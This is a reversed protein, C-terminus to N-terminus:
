DCWLSVEIEQRGEGLFIKGPSSTEKKGTEKEVRCEVDMSVKAGTKGYACELTASEVWDDGRDRTQLYARCSWRTKVGFRLKHPRAVDDPIATIEEKVVKKKSVMPDTEYFFKFVSAQAHAPAACLLAFSVTLAIGLARM